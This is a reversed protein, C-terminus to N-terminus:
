PMEAKRKEEAEFQKFSRYLNEPKVKNELVKLMDELQRTKAELRAVREVVLQFERRSLAM